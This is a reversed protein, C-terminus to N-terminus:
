SVVYQRVSNYSRHDSPVDSAVLSVSIARLHGDSKPGQGHPRRARRGRSSQPIRSGCPAEVRARFPRALQEPGERGVVPHLPRLLQNKPLLPPLHHYHWHDPPPPPPQFPPQNRSPATSLLPDPTPPANPTPSTDSFLDSQLSSTKDNRVVMPGRGSSNRVLMGGKLQSNRLLM